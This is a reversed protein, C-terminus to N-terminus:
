RWGVPFEVVSFVRRGDPWQAEAEIWHNGTNRPTFTFEGGFVPEQDRAEWVILADKVDLGSDAPVTLRVTFARGSTAKEPAGVITGAAARWPQARLPTQAMLWALVGLGRAQNLVVFETSLNFSDGWRDYLPYPARKDGDAPYSLEGLEEKYHDLWGFGSQISGLPIGSPPLVRRDNQAYQHVIERQRTWGMGTLHSRSVPNAGAEYNLNTLVAAFYEARPDKARPFDLQCATALDFAADLPFFWGGGVVRKTEEPLDLGYASQQSARMWEDAGEILENECRELLSADLQDKALRGSRAAFAYARIANGQSECLRWWGWRRMEPDAPNLWELVRKHIAEDGTAAFMAAAAWALEDNHGFEDGYHTIKQYAGDKGHKEIASTLFAWGRQAASLYRAAAEPHERKFRPSSATQALAAVSAATVATNKPWVVQSDGKDPLVDNEYRREKPYVLFFFGGDDDQMKALFDAEWKAIQLLDSKGDGSEPLGLNDLEGAGSFSDAAFVLHHILGASNTTYKSYDGADHHGGSVDVKGKKKFPYLSTSVSVLDRATQLPNKREKAAAKLFEATEEFTITPIEAPATHCNDHVFRTFPLANDTGCRQHYLGLAYTRAFAAPVGDEIRFPHSAGLGPVVLRYEGPTRFTSFDAALVRQYWPYPFGRDPRPTLKGEHAVAGTRADVLMFASDAPVELEGMDGLFYGVMALKRWTPYYGTQNVHIAPSLRLPEVRTSLTNSSPFRADSIAVTVAQGDKIPDEIRLYLANGVRLDHNKLPAYVARRKFGTEKVAVERGDITVVPRNKDGGSQIAKFLELGSAAGKPSRGAGGATIWSVELMTPSIVRLAHEGPAPLALSPGDHSLAGAGAAVAHGGRQPAVFALGCAAALLALHVRAATSAFYM